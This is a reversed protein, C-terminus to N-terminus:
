SLRANATWHLINRDGAASGASTTMTFGVGRTGALSFAGFTADNGRSINRPNANAASPNYGVMTPAARKEVQWAIFNGDQFGVPAVTQSGGFANGTDGANQAVAVGQAFSKEYHRKAKSLDIEIDQMRYSLAIGGPIVHFRGLYGINSTSSMFNAQASTTLHAGAGWTGATTQFDTGAALTIIIRIGTGNTYLWTGATDLTLVVVQMQRVSAVAQTFTGVYRRNNAGNHFSIGYDGAVSLDSPFMVTLQSASPAGSMLAGADYGEIDTYIVYQDAAAISADAVTCALELVRLGANEPDITTRMTFAGVGSALGSWGDPGQVTAASVTYLGGEKIQDLLWNPNINLAPLSYDTFIFGPTSLTIHDLRFTQVGDADITLGLAQASATVAAILADNLEAVSYDNPVYVNVQMQTQTAIENSVDDGFFDVAYVLRQLNPGGSGATAKFTAIAKAM